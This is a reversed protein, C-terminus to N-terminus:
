WTFFIAMLPFLTPYTHLSVFPQIIFLTEKHSPFFFFMYINKELAWILLYSLNKDRGGLKWQFKYQPVYFTLLGTEICDLSLLTMGLFM